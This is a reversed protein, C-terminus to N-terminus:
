PTTADPSDSDARDRSRAVNPASAFAVLELTGKRRRVAAARIATAGLDICTVVPVAM